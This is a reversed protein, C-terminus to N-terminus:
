LLITLPPAVIRKILFFIEMAAQLSKIDIVILLRLSVYLFRSWSSFGCSGPFSARETECALVDRRHLLCHVCFYRGRIMADTSASANAPHAKPRKGYMAM